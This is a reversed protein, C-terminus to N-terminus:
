CVLSLPSPSYSMSQDLSTWVEEVLLLRKHGTVSSFRNLDSIPLQSLYRICSRIENRQNEGNETVVGQLWSELDAEVEPRRLVRESKRSCMHTYVYPLILHTQGKRWERDRSVPEVLSM